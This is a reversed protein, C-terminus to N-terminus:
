NGNSHLSWFTGVYCKMLWLCMKKKKMQLSWRWRWEVEVAVKVAVGVEVGKGGTFKKKMESEISFSPTSMWDIIPEWKFMRVGLAFRFFQPNKEVNM